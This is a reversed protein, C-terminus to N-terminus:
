DLVLAIQDQRTKKAKRIRRQRVSRLNQSGQLLIPDFDLDDGTVVIAHGAVDACLYADIGALHNRAFIQVPHRIRRQRVVDLLRVDERANRRYLFVANEEGEFVVAMRHPEHTVADVVRWRQIRGIDTDGYGACSVHSALSGVNNEHLGAQPDQMVADDLSAFGEAVDHLVQQHAGTRVKAIHEAHRSSREEQREQGHQGRLDQQVVQKVVQGLDGDGGVVNVLSVQLFRLAPVNAKDAIEHHEDSGDAGDEVEEGEIHHQM